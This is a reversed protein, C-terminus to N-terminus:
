VQEFAFKPSTLYFAVFSQVYNPVIKKTETFSPIPIVEYIMAEKDDDLLQLSHEAILSNKTANGTTFLTTQIKNRDENIHGGRFPKKSVELSLRELSLPPLIRPGTVGETLRSVDYFFSSMDQKLANELSEFQFKVNFLDMSYSQIDQLSPTM